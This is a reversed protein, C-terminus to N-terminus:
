PLPVVKGDAVYIEPAGAVARQEDFWPREERRERQVPATQWEVIFATRPRRSTNPGTYHLTRHHHFTAGGAPLPCAVAADTDVGIAELQRIRPDQSSREHNMLTERRHSGPIFEMCSQGPSVAHLPLWAAVANYLRAPDWYAEDQHWPTSGGELAPKHIFQAWATLDDEGVDLLASVYTRAKRVFRTQLLERFTIEPFAYQELASSHTRSSANPENRGREAVAHFITLIENLEQPDVFEEVALYGNQEFFAVEEAGPRESLARM